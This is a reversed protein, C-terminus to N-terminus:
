ERGRIRDILANCKRAIGRGTPWDPNNSNRNKTDSWSEPVGIDFAEPERLDCAILLASAAIELAELLEPAAAILRANAEAEEDHGCIKFPHIEAIKGAGDPAVGLRKSTSEKYPCIHWPGPTYKTKTM